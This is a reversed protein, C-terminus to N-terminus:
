SPDPSRYKLCVQILDDRKLSLTGTMAIVMGKLSDWKYAGKQKTPAPAKKKELAGYPDEDDGNKKPKAKYQPEELAMIMNPKKKNGPKLSIDKKEEKKTEMKYNGKKEEVESESAGATFGRSPAFFFSGIEESSSSSGMDTLSIVVLSVKVRTKRDENKEQTSRRGPFFSISEKEARQINNWLVETPQDKCSLTRRNSRHQRRLRTLPNTPLNNNGEQPVSITYTSKAGPFLIFQDGDQLHYSDGKCVQVECKIISPSVVVPNTGLQHNTPSCSEKRVVQLKVGFPDRELTCQNRSCKPDFCQWKESRGVVTSTTFDLRSKDPLTVSYM